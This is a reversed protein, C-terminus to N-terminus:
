PDCSNPPWSGLMAAAIEIVEDAPGLLPRVCARGLERSVNELPVLPVQGLPQVPKAFREREAILALTQPAHPGPVAPENALPVDDM